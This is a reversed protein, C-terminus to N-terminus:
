DMDSVDYIEEGKKKGKNFVFILGVSTLLLCIINFIWENRSQPIWNHGFYYLRVVSILFSTSCCCIGIFYSVEREIKKM